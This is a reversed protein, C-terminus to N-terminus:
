KQIRCITNRNTCKYWKVYIIIKTLTRNEIINM